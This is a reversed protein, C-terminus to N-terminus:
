REALGGSPDFFRGTLAREHDLRRRFSSATRRRRRARSRVTDPHTLNQM